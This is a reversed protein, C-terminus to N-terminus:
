DCRRYFDGDAFDVVLHSPRGDHGCVFVRVGLPSGELVIREILEDRPGGAYLGPITARADRGVFFPDVEDGGHRVGFRHVNARDQQLIAGFDRLPEGSSNVMDEPGIEAFYAGLEQQPWVPGASLGLVLAM